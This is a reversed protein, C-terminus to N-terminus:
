GATMTVPLLGQALLAAVIDAQRADRRRKPEPRQPASAAMWRKFDVFTGPAITHM